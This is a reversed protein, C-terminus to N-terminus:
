MTLLYLLFIANAINAQGKWIKSSKGNWEFSYKGVLSKYGNVFKEKSPMGHDFGSTHNGFIDPIIISKM